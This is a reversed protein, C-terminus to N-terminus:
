VLAQNLSELSSMDLTPFKRVCTVFCTQPYAVPHGNRNVPFAVDCLEAIIRVVQASRTIGLVFWVHHGDPIIHTDCREAIFINYQIASVYQRILFPADIHGILNERFVWMVWLFPKDGIEFLYEICTCDLNHMPILRINITMYVPHHSDRIITRKDCVKTPFVEIEQAHAVLNEHCLETQRGVFRSEFTNLFCKGITDYERDLM